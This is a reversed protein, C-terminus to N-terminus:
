ASTLKKLAEEFKDKTAKLYALIKIKQLQHAVGELTVLSEGRTIFKKLISLDLISGGKDMVPMIMKMASEDYSTALGKGKDGKHILPIPTFDSHGSSFLQSTFQEYPVNNFSRPRMSNLPIPAPIDMVVRPIKAPPERMNKHVTKKIALELNALRRYELKNLAYFKKNVGKLSEELIYHM